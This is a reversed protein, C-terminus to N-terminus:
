DHLHEYSGGVRMPKEGPVISFGDSPKMWQWTAHMQETIHSFGM